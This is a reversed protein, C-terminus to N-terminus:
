GGGIARVIEVNDGPALCHTGFCSRPIIERNVELALRQENLGLVDVLQAATLRDQVQHSEGNVQIEMSFVQQKDRSAYKVGFGSQRHPRVPCQPRTRHFGRIKSLAAKAGNCYAGVDNNSSRTYNL